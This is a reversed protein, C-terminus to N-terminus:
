WSKWAVAEFWAQAFTAEPQAGWTRLREAHVAQDNLDLQQALYEAIVPTSPYIEYSASPTVYQFGAERLQTPLKRGAYVDGGNGRQMAQYVQMTEAMAEDWPQLVFGGWDPSRLAIFGGPKLVRYLERLAEQPRALHEFLAHSFVGDFTAPLFPLEYVSAEEFRARLNLKAARHRALELQDGNMDIGVVEGPLIKAGIGCTITGPGCGCDLIRMGPLFFPLAFAAHTGASRQAMFEVANLTHGPTYREPNISIPNM